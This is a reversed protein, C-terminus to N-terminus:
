GRNSVNIGKKWQSSYIYGLIFSSYEPGFSTTVLPYLRLHDIHSNHGYQGKAELEKDYLFHSMGHSLWQSHDPYIGHNLYWAYTKSTM